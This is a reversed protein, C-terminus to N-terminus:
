VMPRHMTNIAAAPQHKLSYGNIFHAQQEQLENAKFPPRGKRQGPYFTTFEFWPPQTTSETPMHINAQQISQYQQDYGSYSPQPAPLNSNLPPKEDTKQGHGFLKTM